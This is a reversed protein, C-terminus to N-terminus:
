NDVEEPLVFEGYDETTGVPPAGIMLWREVADGDNRVRRVPEPAFRVLGGAPVRHREGDVEVTGGTPTYYVEEQREHAHAATAEGPELAVANLRMTECGLAPTLPRHATGSVTFPEEEINEQDVITFPEAM